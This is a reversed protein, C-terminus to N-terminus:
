VMGSLSFLGFFRRFIKDRKPYPQIDFADDLPVILNYRERRTGKYSICGKASEARAQEEKDRRYLTIRSDGTYAARIHKDADKVWSLFSASESASDILLNEQVLKMTLDELWLDELDKNEYMDREFMDMLSDLSKVKINSSFKGGIGRIGNAM